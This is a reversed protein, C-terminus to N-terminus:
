QGNWWKLGRDCLFAVGCSKLVGDLAVAVPAWVWVLLPALIGWLAVLWAWLCALLALLFAIM